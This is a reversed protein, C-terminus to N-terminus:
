LYEEDKIKTQKAEEPEVLLEAGARMMAIAYTSGSLSFRVVKFKSDDMPVAFGISDSKKVLEDIKEFPSIAFVGEGDDANYLCVLNVSHSGLSSNLISPYDSDKECSAGFTVRYTCVGDDYKCFQGLLRESDNMTAAYAFEDDFNWVWDKSTQIESYSVSSYLISFICLLFKM